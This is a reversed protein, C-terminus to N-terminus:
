LKLAIKRWAEATFLAFTNMNINCVFFYNKKLQCDELQNFDSTIYNM